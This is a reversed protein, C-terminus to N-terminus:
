TIRESKHTYNIIFFIYKKLSLHLEKEYGSLSSVTNEKYM